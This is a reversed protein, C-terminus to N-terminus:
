AETALLPSPFAVQLLAATLSDILRHDDVMAHGLVHSHVAGEVLAFLVFATALCDGKHGWDELLLQTRRVMDEEFESTLGDLEPDCHRRETLVAHLGPDSRHADLVALVVLRLTQKASDVPVAENDEPAELLAVTSAAIREARERAIERLIQDKDRFYQYLSGVAVGARLAITKSTTSAYGRRSFEFAAATVIAQRTRLAREQRPTRVTTAAAM